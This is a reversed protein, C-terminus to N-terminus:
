EINKGPNNEGMGREKNQGVINFVDSIGLEEAEQIVVCINHCLIKLLIENVQSNKNKSRVHVGFKSKIMHFTSEINSRKHYHMMFEENNLMFYHYAKRWVRKKDARGHSNKKFPIFATGGIEKVQELNKVSLYAKDATVERIEFRGSASEVLPKFQPCDGGFSDTIRVAAVINTKVGTILHAKIWIRNKIDKGHKFSFWRDYQSTGFGSSDISFDTEVSRLPESTEEVLRMLLPTIEKRGFFHGVSAFCPVSSIYGKQRAEKMDTMFRRLSFTTYVKLAAAFMMDTTPISPRGFVYEVGEIESCIDALFEMFRQKENTKANDYAKWNQPYTKRQIKYSIKGDLSDNESIAVAQMHKCPKQREMFDKCTCKGPESVINKSVCYAGLNSQSPVSWGRNTKRIRSNGAIQVAKIKRLDDGSHEDERITEHEM